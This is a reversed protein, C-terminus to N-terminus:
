EGTKTRALVRAHEAAQDFNMITEENADEHDDAHAFVKTWCGGAGDACRVVWVGAGRHNRRYGLGIGAAVAEFVPKLKIPLELRKGRNKLESRIKVPMARGRTQNRDPRRPYVGISRQLREYCM